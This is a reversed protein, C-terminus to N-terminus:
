NNFTLNISPSIMRANLQERSLYYNKLDSGCYGFPPKKNGYTSTVMIPSNSSSVDSTVGPNIGLSYYCEANNYKMIEVANKQLYQRYDWNNEIKEFQRIKEMTAATSDYSTFMRGSSMLAPKDFHINNCENNCNPNNKANCGYCTGWSM